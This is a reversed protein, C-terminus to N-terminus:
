LGRNFGKTCTAFTNGFEPGMLVDLSTAQQSWLIGVPNHEWVFPHVRVMVLKAFSLSGPIWIM